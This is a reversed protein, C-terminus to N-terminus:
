GSLRFVSRIAGMQFYLITQLLTTHTSFSNQVADKAGRTFRVVRLTEGADFTIQAQISDRESDVGCVADMADIIEM